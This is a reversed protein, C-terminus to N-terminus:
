KIIIKYSIEKFKYKKALETMGGECLGPLVESVRLTSTELSFGEVSIYLSKQELKKNLNIMM